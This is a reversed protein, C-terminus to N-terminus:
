HPRVQAAKYPTTNDTSASQANWTHPLDITEWNAARSSLAEDDTLNNDFTFKWNQMLPVTMRLETATASMHGAAAANSQDPVASVPADQALAAGSLTSLLLFAAIWLRRM